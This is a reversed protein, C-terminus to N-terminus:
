IAVFRIRPVLNGILFSQGLQLSALVQHLASFERRDYRSSSVAVMFEDELARCAIFNHPFYCFITAHVDVFQAFGSAVHGRRQSSLQVDTDRPALASESPLGWWRLQGDPGTPSWGGHHHSGGATRADM